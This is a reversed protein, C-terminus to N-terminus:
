QAGQFREMMQRSVVALRAQEEKMVREKRKRWAPDIIGNKDTMQNFEHGFRINTKALEKMYQALALRGEATLALTPSMRNLLKQEFDSMAGPMLNTGEGTRLHLAFNDSISKAMDAAGVEKGIDVGLSKLGSRVQQVLPGLEGEPMNPTSYLKELMDLQSIMRNSSTMAENLMTGEKALDKGVVEAQAEQMKEKPVDPRALPKPAGPAQGEVPPVLAPEQGPKVEINTIKEGRKSRLDALAQMSQTMQQEISKLVVPNSKYRAADANLQKVKNLLFEEDEPAAAPAMTPLAGTAAINRTPEARGGMIAPDRSIKSFESNTQETAWTNPDPAKLKQAHEFNAKWRADYQGQLNTPLVLQGTMKNIAGVTPINKYPDLMSQVMATTAGTGLGAMNERSKVVDDYQLKTAAVERTRRDQRALDQRKVIEAGAADWPRDVPGGLIGRGASAWADTNMPETNRVAEMYQQLAKQQAEMNPRETERQQIMQLLSAMSPNGQAQPISPPPTLGPINYDDM